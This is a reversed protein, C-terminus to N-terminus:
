HHPQTLNESVKKDEFFTAYTLDLRCEFEWPPYIWTLDPKGVIVISDIDYDVRDFYSESTPAVWRCSSDNQNGLDEFIIECDNEEKPYMKARIKTVTLDLCRPRTQQLLLVVRTLNIILERILLIPERSSLIKALFFSEDWSLVQIFNRM